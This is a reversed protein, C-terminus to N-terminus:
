ATDCDRVETHAENDLTEISDIKKQGFLTGFM